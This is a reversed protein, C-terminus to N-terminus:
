CRRRRSSRSCKADAPHDRNVKGARPLTVWYCGEVDVTGGDPVGGTPRTDIFVRRNAITGSAADFDFAWVAHEFTDAYYMTRSDPSM